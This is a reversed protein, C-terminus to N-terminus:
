TKFQVLVILYTLTNRIYSVFAHRSCGMLGGVRVIPQHLGFTNLLLVLQNLNEEDLHSFKQDFIVFYFNRGVEKTTREASEFLFFFVLSQTIIMWGMQWEIIGEPELLSTFFAYCNIIFGLFTTMGISAMVLGISYGTASVLESLLLWCKRLREVEVELGKQLVFYLWLMLFYFFFIDNKSIGYPFRGCIRLVLLIPRVHDLFTNPIYEGSSDEREVSATETRAQYLFSVNFRNCNCFKFDNLNIMIICM